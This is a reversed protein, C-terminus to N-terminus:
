CQSRRCIGPGYGGGAKCGVISVILLCVTACLRLEAEHRTEEIV